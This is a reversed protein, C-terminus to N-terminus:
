EEDRMEDLRGILEDQDADSEFSVDGDHDNNHVNVAEDEDIDDNEQALAIVAVIVEDVKDAVRELRGHHIEYFLYLIVLVATSANEVLFSLSVM